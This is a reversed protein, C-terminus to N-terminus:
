LENDFLVRFAENGKKDVDLAWPKRSHIRPCILLSGPTPPISEPLKRLLADKSRCESPGFDFVRHVRLVITRTGSHEALTSREFSAM